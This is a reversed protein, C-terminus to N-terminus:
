GLNYEGLAKRYYAKVFNEDIKLAEVCDDICLQYKNM